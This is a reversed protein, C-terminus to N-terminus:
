KVENRYGIINILIFEKNTKCKDGIKKRFYRINREIARNDKKFLMGLENYLSSMNINNNKYNNLVYCVIEFSSYKCVGAGYKSILYQEAKIEKCGKLIVEKRKPKNFFTDDLYDGQLTDYIFQLFYKLDDDNTSMLIEEDKWDEYLKVERFFRFYLELIDKNM